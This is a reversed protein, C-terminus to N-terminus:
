SYQIRRKIRFWGVVPYSAAYPAVDQNVDYCVPVSIVSSPLSIFHRASRRATAMAGEVIRGCDTHSIPHVTCDTSPVGGCHIGYEIHTECSGAAPVPFLREPM